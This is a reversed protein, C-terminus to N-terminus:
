PRNSFCAWSSGTQCPLCLSPDLLDEITCHASLFARMLAVVWGLHHASQEAAVAMEPLVQPTGIDYAQRRLM